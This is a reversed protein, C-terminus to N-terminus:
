VQADHGAGVPVYTTEMAAIRGAAMHFVSVGLYRHEGGDGYALARWVAVVGGPAAHLRLWPLWYAAGPRSAYLAAFTRAGHTVVPVEQGCEMLFEADPDCLAAAGGADGSLVARIFTRVTVTASGTGASRSFTNEDV